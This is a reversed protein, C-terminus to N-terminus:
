RRLLLPFACRVCAASDSDYLVPHHLGDSVLEAFLIKESKGWFSHIVRHIDAQSLGSFRAALLFLRRQGSFSCISFEKFILPKCFIRSTLPSFFIKRQGEACLQAYLRQRVQTGSISPLPAFVCSKAGVALQFFPPFALLVGTQPLRLLRKSNANKKGTM